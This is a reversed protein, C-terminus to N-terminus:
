RSKSETKVTGWSKVIFPKAEIKMCPLATILIFKMYTQIHVDAIGVMHESSISKYKELMMFYHKEINLGALGCGESYLHISQDKILISPQEPSFDPKEFIMAGYTGDKHKLM